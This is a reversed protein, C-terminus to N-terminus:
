PSSAFFYNQTAGNLKAKRRSNTCMNTSINITNINQKNVFYLVNLPCSNFIFLLHNHHHYAHNEYNYFTQLATM